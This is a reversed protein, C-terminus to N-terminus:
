SKLGKRRIVFVVFAAATILLSAVLSPRLLALIYQRMTLYTTESEHADIYTTVSDRVLIICLALSILFSYIWTKVLVREM